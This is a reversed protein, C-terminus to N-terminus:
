LSHQLTQPAIARCYYEGAPWRIAVCRDNCPGTEVCSCWAVVSLLCCCPGTVLLIGHPRALLENFRALTDAEFGMQELSFRVSARDLVRM